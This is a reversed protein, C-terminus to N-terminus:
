VPVFSLERSCDRRYWGRSMRTLRVRSQPVKVMYQPPMGPRLPLGLPLAAGIAQAHTPGYGSLKDM